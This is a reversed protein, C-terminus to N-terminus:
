IDLLEQVKEYTKEIIVPCVEVKNLPNDGVLESCELSEFNEYFWDVLEDRLSQAAEEPDALYLLCIAGTLTGCTKELWYGNCLGAMAAILDPNEEKELDELGMAMIMQSCCYDKMKLEFIRESIDM